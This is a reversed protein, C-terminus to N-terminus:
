HQPAETLGRAVGVGAGIGAGIATVPAATVAAGIVAGVVPGIALGIPLFPVGAILGAVGGVLGGATALPAGVTVTAIAAGRVSDGVTDSAVRHARAPDLGRAEGASAVQAEAGAAADNIQQTQQMSLWDPASLELDGVRVTAPAPPTVPQVAAVRVASPAVSSAISPILASHHSSSAASAAGVASAAMVLPVSGAAVITAM